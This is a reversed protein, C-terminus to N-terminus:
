TVLSQGWVEVALILSEHAKWVATPRRVALDWVVVWGDADGTILRSNGRVFKVAHIQSAHGRLIYTPQPPTPAPVITSSPAQPNFLPLKSRDALSVAEDM